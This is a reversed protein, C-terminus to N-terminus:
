VNQLTKLYSEVETLKTKSFIWGAGCSLRFNFKGGLEKLKDKIPKTDGIIAISKSTYEVINIEGPHIEIPQAATNKPLDYAITYFDEILGATVGNSKVVKLNIANHPIETKSFVRWAINRAESTPINSVDNLVRDTLTAFEKELDESKNRCTQVFKAQPLNDVYNSNVYMDNMGDFHGYQYKRTIEDIQKTTPGNTWSINVSNGMSFNDSKVSFKIFPFEKKLETRIAKACNAATSMTPNERREKKYKESRDYNDVMRKKSEELAEINSYSYFSVANAATNKFVKMLPKKEETNIFFKLNKYDERKYGTKILSDFQANQANIRREKTNLKYM